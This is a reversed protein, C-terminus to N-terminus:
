NKIHKEFIKFFTDPINIQQLIRNKFVEGESAVNGLFWLVQHISQLDDRLLMHGMNELIKLNPSLIYELDNKTCESSLNILIWAAELQLYKLLSDPNQDDEEMALIQDIIFLINSTALLKNM